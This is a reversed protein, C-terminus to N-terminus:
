WEEPKIKITSLNGGAQLILEITYGSIKNNKRSFTFIKDAKNYYANIGFLCNDGYWNRGSIYKLTYVGVPVKTKLVSGGRVYFAIVPKGTAADSLKVFYDYEKTSTKLVLPAVLDTNTVIFLEGHGPRSTKSKILQRNLVDDNKKYSRLYKLIESMSISNKHPVTGNLFTSLAQRTEESPQGDITGPSLGRYLLREQIECFDLTQSRNQDDAYCCVSHILILLSIGLRILM